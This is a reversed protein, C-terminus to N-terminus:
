KKDKRKLAARLSRWPLTLLRTKSSEVVVVIGRIDEYWWARDDVLHPSRKLDKASM